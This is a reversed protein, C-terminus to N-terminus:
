GPADDTLTVITTHTGEDAYKHSGSVTFVGNGGSVTGITTTGDGWDITATFDSPLNGPYGTDTFTAVAGTFTTGETPTVSLGSGILADAEEVIAVATVTASATGPADDRLKVIPTFRGE